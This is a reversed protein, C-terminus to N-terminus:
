NLFLFLLVWFHRTSSLLLHSNKCFPTFNTFHFSDSMSNRIYEEEIVCSSRLLLLFDFSYTLFHCNLMFSFFHLMDCIAPTAYEFHCPWHVTSFHDLPTQLSVQKGLSNKELAAIYITYKYHKFTYILYTKLISYLAVANSGRGIDWAWVTMM